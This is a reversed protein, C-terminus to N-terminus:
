EPPSPESYEPHASMFKRLGNMATDRVKNQFPSSWGLATGSPGIAMRTWKWLDFADTHRIILGDRFVFSAGVINHVSRSGKPFTYRADWHAGGTEDDAEVRNFTVELDTGRECLMHWMARAEDGRLDTFVPDSFHVQPHYCENMGAYDREQFAEYFSTILDAHPNM